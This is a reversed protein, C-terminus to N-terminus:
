LVASPVETESQRWETSAKTQDENEDDKVVLALVRGHDHQALREDAHLSGCEMLYAGNPNWDLITLDYADPEWTQVLLFPPPLM